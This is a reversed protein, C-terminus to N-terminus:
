NTKKNFTDNDDDHDDNTYLPPDLIVFVRNIAYTKGFVAHFHFFNSRSFSLFDNILEDAEEDM